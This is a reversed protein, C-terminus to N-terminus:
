KSHTKTSPDPDTAKSSTTGTVTLGSMLESFGGYYDQLSFDLVNRIAPGNNLPGFGEVVPRTATQM